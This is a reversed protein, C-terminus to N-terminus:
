LLHVKELEQQQQMSDDLIRGYKVISDVMWDYGSFGCSKKRAKAAEASSVESVTVAARWGDGFSYTFYGEDIMKQAIAKLHKGRFYRVLAHLRDEGSWKGNWSNCSPMSLKFLLIM